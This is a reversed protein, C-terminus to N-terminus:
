ENEKKRIVLYIGSFILLAGIIHYIELKEKLFIISIISSFIPILNLFLGSKNAGIIKISKIWLLYSILAPGIGVYFVLFWGYKENVFFNLNNISEVVYFPTVFINGIFFILFLFSINDLEKPINRVMSSYLAWCSVCGLMWIDGSVFNFKSLNILDGRIIVCLFGIFSIIVGIFQFTSIKSKYLILSFLIILSPAFSPMLSSSIVSSTTLATNMFTNFISVSLISFFIIIKWNKIFVSYINNLNNFVFPFLIFLVVLNRFFSLKIPELSVNSAIKAGIINGGWLLTAFILFIYASYNNSIKM